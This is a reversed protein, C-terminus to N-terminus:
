PMSMAKHHGPVNLPMEKMGRMILNTVKSERQLTTPLGHHQYRYSRQTQARNKWISVDATGNGKRLMLCMVGGALAETRDDPQDTVQLANRGCLSRLFGTIRRASFLLAQYCSSASPVIL